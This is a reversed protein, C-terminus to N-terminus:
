FMPARGLQRRVVAWQGCHMLWHSGQLSFLAGVTAAYGRYAEPGPKDLDDDSISDLAALTAARQQGHISLLEQKSHFTSPDDSAATEKSYRTGFDPPLPPMSGPICDNIMRHESGILHGLQWKLHNIGPCARRLLDADSLDDLYSLCVFDALELNIRIAQRANM